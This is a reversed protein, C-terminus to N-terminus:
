CSEGEAERHSMGACDIFAFCKAPCSIFKFLLYVHVCGKQNPTRGNDPRNESRREKKRERSDNRRHCDMKAIRMQVVAISTSREPKPRTRLGLARVSRLRIRARATPGDATGIWKRLCNFRKISWTFIPSKREALPPWLAAAFSMRSMVHKKTVSFRSVFLVCHINTKFKKKRRRQIRVSSISINMENKSSSFDFRISNAFRFSRVGNIFM